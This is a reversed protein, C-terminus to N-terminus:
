LMVRHDKNGTWLFSFYINWSKELIGKPIWSLAMWYVPNSELVLKIHVLRGVRSLWRHSWIKIRKELKVFLWLWDTKRYDNPKLYFGLYKVGEDLAWYHFNFREELIRLEHDDLKEWTITSKGENILMRSAGKFLELGQCLFNVDM